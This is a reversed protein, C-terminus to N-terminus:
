LYILKIYKLRLLGSLGPRHNTPNGKIMGILREFPFCWWGVAPGFLELYRPIHFGFHHNPLCHFGSYLGDNIGQIYETFHDQYKTWRESFTIRRSLLLLASVLHMTNDLLKQTLPGSNPRGPGWLLVLAVPIHIAM